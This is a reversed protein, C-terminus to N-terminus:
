GRHVAKARMAALNGRSANVRAAFTDTPVSYANLTTAVVLQLATLVGAPETSAALNNLVDIIHNAVLETAKIHENSVDDNAM